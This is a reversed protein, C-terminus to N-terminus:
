NENTKEQKLNKKEKQIQRLWKKKELTIKWITEDM